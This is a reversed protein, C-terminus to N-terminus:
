GSSASRHTSNLKAKCMNAFTETLDSIYSARKKSAVAIDDVYSLVNQGVQDKLAAKTMRCFTSRRQAVGRANEYLL